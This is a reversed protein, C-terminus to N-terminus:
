DLKFEVNAKPMVGDLSGVGASNGDAWCCGGAIALGWAVNLKPPPAAGTAVDVGAGAVVVVVLLTGDMNENPLLLAVGAAAVGDNPPNLTGVVLVFVEFGKPPAVFVIAAAGCCVVAAVRGLADETNPATDFVVFANAKPSVEIFLDDAVAIAFLTGTNPPPPVVAVVVCPDVAGLEM